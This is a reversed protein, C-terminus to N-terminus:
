RLVIELLRLAALTAVIGVATVAALAAAVQREDGTWRGGFLV